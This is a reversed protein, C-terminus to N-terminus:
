GELLALGSSMGVWPWEREEWCLIWLERGLLGGLKVTHDTHSKQRPQFTALLWPQQTHLHGISVPRSDTVHTLCTQALPLASM